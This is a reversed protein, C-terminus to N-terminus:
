WCLMSSWVVWYWLVNHYFKGGTNGKKRSRVSPRLRNGLGLATFCEGQGRLSVVARIVAYFVSKM